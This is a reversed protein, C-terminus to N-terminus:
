TEGRIVALTALCIALPASDAYVLIHERSPNFVVECSEGHGDIEVHVAEVDLRKWLYERVEWAAAIDSSYAKIRREHLVEQTEPDPCGQSVSGSAGCVSCKWEWWPRTSQIFPKGKSGLCHGTHIGLMKAILTDLGCGTKM